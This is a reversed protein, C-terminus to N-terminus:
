WANEALKLLRGPMPPTRLAIYLLRPTMDELKYRRNFRYQFEAFYRPLHKPKIARYTGLLMRKLNALMTNVWKFAPSQAGRWGGVSIKPDHGHGAAKIARFAKMGDTVVVTKVNDTGALDKLAWRKVQPKRFGKVVQLKLREPRGDESTQVAAIFPTKGPAGRGRKGGHKAGGIYADDAEVRGALPKGRERELMVQMLKQKMMWATNQSVGLDRGLEISSIGHKSKTLLYIALFWTTLPLNSAHFITGSRLSAQHRCASCQYLGRTGVVSHKRGGCMPCEFGKPWRMQFVAARCKEETGYAAMFDSISTGAQFQVL